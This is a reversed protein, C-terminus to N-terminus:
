RNVSNAFYDEVDSTKTLNAGRAVSVSYVLNNSMGKIGASTQIYNANNHINLSGGESFADINAGLFLFKWKYVDQQVKIMEAIKARTFDSSANELGDTNIYVVVLEPKEDEPLANLKEGVKNLTMGVADLLATLGLACYNSETLETFNRIDVFDDLITIQNDFITTTVTCKGAIKQQEKIYTNYAGRMDSIVKEVSGSRDLINVLHTYNKRM